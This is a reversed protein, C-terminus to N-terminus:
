EGKGEFLASNQEETEVGYVYLYVIEEGYIM